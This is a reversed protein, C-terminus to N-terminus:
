EAAGYALPNRCPAAPMAHTAAHVVMDGVAYYRGGLRQYRADVGDYSRDREVTVTPLADVIRESTKDFHFLLAFGAPVQQRRAMLQGGNGGQDVKQGFQFLDTPLRDIAADKASNASSNSSM